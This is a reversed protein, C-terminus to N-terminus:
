SVVICIVFSRRHWSHLTFLMAVSDQSRIRSRMVYWSDIFQLSCKSVYQVFNVSKHYFRLRMCYSHFDVKTKFVIWFTILLINWRLLFEANLIFNQSRFREFYFRDNLVDISASQEGLKIKHLTLLVIFQM